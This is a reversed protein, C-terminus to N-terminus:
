VRDDKLRKAPSVQEDASPYALAHLMRAAHLLSRESTHALTLQTEATTLRRALEPARQALVGGVRAPSISHGVGVREALARRSADAVVGATLARAKARRLMQGVATAYEATSRDRRAALPLRPGFGRGRLVLGLYIAVMAWFVPAGWPTVAWDFESPTAAGGHHLEDFVVPVGPGAMSLLDVAMRGNDALRLPSNCLWLPDGLVIVRGSGHFAEIAVTLSPDANSQLLRVQDPRPDIASGAFGARPDSVVGDVGPLFPGSANAGSRADFSGLRQVGFRQDIRNDGVSDGYVLMGGAAVWESLRDAEADSYSTPNFVFLIGGSPLGFSGKIASTPHGLAGALEYLAATGDRATSDSRHDPSTEPTSPVLLIIALLVVVVVAGIAWGLRSV